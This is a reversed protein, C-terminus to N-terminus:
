DYNNRVVIVQSECVVTFAIYFNIDAKVLLKQNCKECTNTMAYEHICRRVCGNFLLTLEVDSPLKLLPSPLSYTM